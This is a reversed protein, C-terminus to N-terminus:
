DVLTVEWNTRQVVADLERIEKALADARSRLEATPLAAFTRLESRLQRYGGNTGSTADAAGTVLAHRLRLADRRALLATVTQGSAVTTSANTANIRALLVELADISREAEALLERADEDPEEGEQYRANAAIRGRLQEIRKQLDAREILAEALQM